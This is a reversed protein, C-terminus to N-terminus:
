GRVGGGTNSPLKYQALAKLVGVTSKYLRYTNSLSLHPYTYIYMCVYM